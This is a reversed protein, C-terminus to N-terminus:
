SCQFAGEEVSRFMVDWMNAGWLDGAHKWVYGDREFFPATDCLGPSPWPWALSTELLVCGTGYRRPSDDIIDLAVWKSGIDDTIHEAFDLLRRMRPDLETVPDTHGTKSLPRQASYDHRKFIAFSDGIRNVRWTYDHAVFRQLFVYDSQRSKHGGSCHNVEVGGRFVQRVHWAADTRTPLYRVNVSSAGEDAKSVLPFWNDPLLRLWSQASAEDIFNYSVPMLHGWWRWQARKDEYCKVQSPDQIMTDCCQQMRPYDQLQNTRLIRPDAHPRLFGVDYSVDPIPACSAIVHTAYGWEKAAATIAGQWKGYADLLLLKKM